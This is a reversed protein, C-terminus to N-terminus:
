TVLQVTTVHCTVHGLQCTVHGLKCTVHSIPTTVHSKGCEERVTMYRRTEQSPKLSLQKFSTKNLIGRDLGLM